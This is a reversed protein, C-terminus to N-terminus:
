LLDTTASDCRHQRDGGFRWDSRHNLAVEVPRYGGLCKALKGALDDLNETTALL